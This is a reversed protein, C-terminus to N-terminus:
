HTYSCSRSVNIYYWAIYVLITQLLGLRRERQVVVHEAIYQRLWKKVELQLEGSLPVVAGMVAWFLGPERSYLESPSTRPSIVVFPYRPTLDLRYDDLYTEAQTTTLRFGPMLEFPVPGQDADITTHSSEVNRSVPSVTNKLPPLQIQASDQSDPTLPPASNAQLHQGAALLSVLGDIKSELQAM